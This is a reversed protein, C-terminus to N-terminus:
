LGLKQVKHFTTFRTGSAFFDVLEDLFHELSFRFFHVLAYSIIKSMFGSFTGVGEVGFRV